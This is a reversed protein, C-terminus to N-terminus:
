LKTKIKKVLEEETYHGEFNITELSIDSTSLNEIRVIYYNKKGSIPEPLSKMTNVKTHTKINHVFILLINIRGVNLILKYGNWITSILSSIRVRSKPCNKGCGQVRLPEISRFFIHSGWSLRSPRCTHHTDVFFGALIRPRIM